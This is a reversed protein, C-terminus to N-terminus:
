FITGQIKGVENVTSLKNQSRELLCSITTGTIKTEAKLVNFSSM